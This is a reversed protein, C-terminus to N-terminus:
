TPAGPRSSAMAMHAVVVYLIGGIATLLQEQVAFMPRGHALQWGDLLLFLPIVVSLFISVAQSIVAHSM